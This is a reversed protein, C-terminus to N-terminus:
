HKNRPFEVVRLDRIEKGEITFCLITKLDAVKKENLEELKYM